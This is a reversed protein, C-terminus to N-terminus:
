RPGVDVATALAQDVIAVLRSVPMEDLCASRSQQHRDCGEQLCPVCHPMGQVIWVNGQRQLPATMKWSAPTRGDSSRPWPGWAITNSPGFLAVTPVGTAAALHTVSTDPGVYLCAKEILPTLEPFELRGALNVVRGADSGAVIAEVLDREAAAPGGTVFVRLGRSVLELLLARWGAHTWGKYPYMAAPHMVAFPTDDWGAGLKADLVAADPPRPPVVEPWRPVSMREVLRLSQEVTHMVRNNARLSRWSVWRKWRAGPEDDPPIMSVRRPAALLALIHARDSFITTVALEYRRFIRRLLAWGERWGPRHPIAIVADLDPNGALASVTEPSVLAEIRMGPQAARRLSRILATALLVDGLRRTCIVAIRRSPM